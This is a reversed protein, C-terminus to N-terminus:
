LEDPLLDVLRNSEMSSRNEGTGGAGCGQKGGAEGFVGQQQNFGWQTHAAAACSAFGLPSTRPISHCHSSYSSSHLPLASPGLFPSTGLAPSGVLSVDGWLSGNAPSLDKLGAPGFASSCGSSSHPSGGSNINGGQCGITGYFSAAATAVDAVPADELASMTSCGSSSRRGGAGRRDHSDDQGDSSSRDPHLKLIAEAASERMSSSGAAAAGMPEQQQRAPVVFASSGNHYESRLDLNLEPVVSSAAAAAAAAAAQQQRLQQLFLMQQLHQQQQQAAPVGGSAAQVNSALASLMQAMYPACSPVAGAAATGSSGEEVADDAASGDEGRPTAAASSSGAGRPTAPPPPPQTLIHLVAAPPLGFQLLRVQMSTREKLVAQQVGTCLVQLLLPSQLTEVVAAEVAAQVAAAEHTAADELVSALQQQHGSVQQRLALQASTLDARAQLLEAAMRQLQLIHEQEQEVGDGAAGHMGAGGQIGALQETVGQEQAEGQQQGEQV